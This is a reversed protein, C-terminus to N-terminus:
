SGSATRWGPWCSSSPSCGCGPRRWSSPWRSATWGAASRRGRGARERRDPRLGARVPRARARRVPAGGRVADAGDARRRRAAARPCRWRPVRLATEGAIGLPERSTALVSLGPCARLLADALRPAPTWCTSATTWCWCCAGAAAPSRRAHGPAPRGAGGARGPAPAGGRCWRRTPWRRWSWSGSATPSRRWPTPPRRCPWAPRARRRRAGTLTVLRHAAAAAAAM